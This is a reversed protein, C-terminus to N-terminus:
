SEKFSPVPIYHHLIEGCNNCKMSFKYVYQNGKFETKRKEPPNISEDVINAGSRCKFCVEFGKPVDM